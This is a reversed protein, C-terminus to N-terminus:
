PIKSLITVYCIGFVFNLTDATKMSEKISAKYPTIDCYDSIRAKASEHLRSYLSFFGDTHFM